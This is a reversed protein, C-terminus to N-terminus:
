EGGKYKIIEYIIKIATKRDPEISSESFKRIDEDNDIISKHLEPNLNSITRIMLFAGSVLSKRTFFQKLEIRKSLKNLCTDLLANKQKEDLGNQMYPLALIYELLIDTALNNTSDTCYQEFLLHPANLRKTLADLGNFINKTSEFGDVFNDYLLLNQIFPFNYVTKILDETPMKILIDDPINCLKVKAIYSTQAKWLSDGPLVPYRYPQSYATYYSSMGLLAIFLIIIKM